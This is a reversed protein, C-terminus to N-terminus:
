YKGTLPIKLARKWCLMIIKVLNDKIDKLKGQDSAHNDSLAYIETANNKLFDIINKIQIMNGYGKSDLFMIGENVIDIGLNAALLPMTEYETPGEVILVANCNFLDTNVHGLVLKIENM